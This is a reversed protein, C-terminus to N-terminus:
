LLYRKTHSLQESLQSINEEKMSSTNRAEHDVFNLEQKLGALQKAQKTRVKELHDLKDVLIRIEEDKEVHKLKMSNIDAMESKLNTIQVRADGLQGRLKENVRELKRIKADKEESEQFLAVKGASKEELSAVKKRLMDLHLEKGELEEKLQKVKRQLTYVTSTKEALTSDEKEILQKVRHLVADSNIDLGVESTIKEMKLAKSLKEIFELFKVREAHLMSNGSSKDELTMVKELLKQYRCNENELKKNMERIQNELHEVSCKKSKYDNLFERLRIVISDDTKDVFQYSCSLLAAINERLKEYNARVESLGLDGSHKEATLEDIRIKLEEIQSALSTKVECEASLSSTLEEIQARLGGNTSDGASKEGELTSIQVKLQCESEHIKETEAVLRMITERGAKVETESQALLSELRTQEGRQGSVENKLGDKENKLEVVKSTLANLNDPIQSDWEASSEGLAALIAIYMETRKTRSDTKEASLSQKVVELELIIEKYRTVEESLFKNQTKYEEVSSATIRHENDIKVAKEELSAMTDRLSNILISQRTNNEKLKINEDKLSVYDSNKITLKHKLEKMDEEISQMKAITSALEDRAQEAKLRYENVM